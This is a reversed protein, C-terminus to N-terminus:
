TLFWLGHAEPFLVRLGIDWRMEWKKMTKNTTLPKSYMPILQRLKIYNMDLVFMANDLRGTFGRNIVLDLDAYPTIYKKWKLGFRDDGPTMQYQNNKRSMAIMKAVFGSGCICVKNQSGYRFQEIVDADFDDPTMTSATLKFLRSGGVGVTSAARIAQEISISTRVTEGDANILPNSSPETFPNTCNIRQSAYLLMRDVDRMLRMQAWKLQKMVEDGYVIQTNAELQDTISYSEKFSGIENWCTVPKEYRAESEDSGEGFARGVHYLKTATAGGAVIDFGPTGTLLKFKIEDTDDTDSMIITASKTEDTPDVLIMVDGKKFPHPSIAAGGATLSVSLGAYEAANAALASIATTDSTKVYYLPDNIYSGRHEIYSELDGSAKEKATGLGLLIALFPNASPELEHLKAADDFFVRQSSLGDILQTRSTIDVGYTIGSLDAM